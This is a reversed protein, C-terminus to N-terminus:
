IQVIYRTAREYINGQWRKLGSPEVIVQTSAAVQGRYTTLTPTTFSSYSDTRDGNLDIIPTPNLIPIDSFTTIGASVGPLFYDFHVYSLVQTAAPRRGVNYKYTINYVPDTENILAVNFTTTTPTGTVTRNVTRFHNTGSVTVVYTIVAVDGTTYGHPNATELTTTTGFNTFGVIPQVIIFPDPTIGPVIHAYTEPEIRSVPVKSFTRTWRVIGGGLAQLPSESVLYADTHLVDATDLVMPAWYDLRQMYDQEFYGSASDGPFPYTWVRASVAEAITFDGDYKISM